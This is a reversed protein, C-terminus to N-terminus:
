WQLQWHVWLKYISKCEFSLPRIKSTRLYKDYWNCAVIDLINILIVANSICIHTQVMSPM